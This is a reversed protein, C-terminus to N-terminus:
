QTESEPKTIADELRARWIALASRATTLAARATKLAKTTDAEPMCSAELSLAAATLRVMGVTGASGAIRHAECRLTEVDDTVLLELLQDQLMAVFTLTAAGMATEFAACASLEDALSPESAEAQSVAEEAGDFAQALAKALLDPSLPKLLHGQMGAELCSAIQHAGGSATLALIPLQLYGEARLTRTAAIGGMVPMHVDMLVLDVPEARVANIAAQGDEALIVECGLQELLVRCLERNIAVDDVVLVLRGPYFVRAVPQATQIAAQVGVPLALELWFTAGEGEDSDCGTAGGMLEILERSIALGLGTGGYTRSITSDAQSFRKFLAAQKESSIGIGNDRVSIRVAQRGKDMALCRVDVVIVGVATFKIANSLFNLLVQRLRFKDGILVGADDGTLTLRLGKEAARPEVMALAESVLDCVLFPRAELEVAGAELKSFDLLDNILTNLSEGGERVIGVRHRDEETLNASEALLRSFGIVGTLPTRLEHSMNALFDSKAQNAAEAADKASSLQTAMAALSLTQQELAEQAEIRATLDQVQGIFHRVSGDAERMASATLSVWVIQGDKRIYRKDIAYSTIEGAVLRQLLALDAELDDSHTITQFDLSLIEAEEYGILQCFAGNIKVFGGDPAVLAMGIAAYHFSTEFLELQATRESIDHMLATFQWGAPGQTASIALEIPFTEGSKRRAPVEIRRDLVVGVGTKLFRQMGESHAGQQAEPVILRALSQGVAEQASWGFTVEAFRNWDTVLGAEDITVIAQYADAIIRGVRAESARLHAELTRREAIDRIVVVMASPAGLADRVLHFRSEVWVEHGDHHLARHQLVADERGAAMAQFIGLIEARDAPHVFAHAPLGVMDERSYGLLRQIAPSIYSSSGDFAIRTVVDGINETLLKYLSKSRRIKEIAEQQETVDQIVGFLATLRGREDLEAASRVVARRMTSDPRLIRVDLDYGSATALANAFAERLEAQDELPHFSLLDVAGPDFGAPDVGYLRYVEDSWTVRGGHVEYRFRGVGSIAEALGLMRQQEAFARELRAAHLREVVLDALARLQALEADSPRPRPKTDIVCLTGLNHGERDTLVAGAYFRINPAGTVLVSQRFRPDRSADPVVMIAQPGLEIAHACFALERSTSCPELGIRAKFWQRHDDVLSVLAIPADFLQAALGTIQDFGPEPDTDLVRFSRLAALRATEAISVSM